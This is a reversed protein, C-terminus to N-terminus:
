KIKVKKKAKKKGPKKKDLKKNIKEVLKEIEKESMGHALCGQEITEGASMPCGICMMGANFFDGATEPNKMIVENINSKKSIKM